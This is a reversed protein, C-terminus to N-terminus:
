VREIDHRGFLGHPRIMVTLILVAAVILDRSGGGVIDDLFYSGVSELIGLIIGAVIAGLISDLGGLVAVTLGKLLLISLSQDVGQIEGWIVGTAVAVISALGWSLGVGREVSIGVSWSAMYDDSIARLRIGLRSRFFLLFAVFLAIAVGAGVIHIRSLLMDGVFLPDYSVGLEMSRSSGGWIALTTGRLFIDIGMTMMLIMIVPRGALRRLAVREIGIGVFFMIVVALPIAVWLPLGMNHSFALVVYAGLMTLAGQALNPVSSSKYILVLGIAFLSYLLGTLAGNVALEALFVLDM